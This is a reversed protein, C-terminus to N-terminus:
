WACVALIRRRVAACTLATSFVDADGAPFTVRHAACWRGSPKPDLPNPHYVVGVGLVAPLCAHRSGSVISSRCSALFCDRAAWGLFVQELKNSTSGRQLPEVDRGQIATSRQLLDRHGPNMGVRNKERALVRQLCRDPVLGAILAAALKRWLRPTAAVDELMVTECPVTLEGKGFVVEVHRRNSTANGSALPSPKGPCLIISIVPVKGLLLAAHNVLAGARIRCCRGVM